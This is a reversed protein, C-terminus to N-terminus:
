HRNPQQRSEYHIRENGSRSRSCSGNAAFEGCDYLTGFRILGCRMKNWRAVCFVSWVGDGMSVMSTETLNRASVGIANSTHADPRKSQAKCAAFSLVEIPAFSLIILSDCPMTAEDLKRVLRTQSHFDVFVDSHLVQHVPLRPPALDNARQYAGPCWPDV